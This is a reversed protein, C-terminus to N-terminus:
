AVLKDYEKTMAVIQLLEHEISVGGPAGQALILKRAAKLAEDAIMDRLGSKYEEVPIDVEQEIKIKTKQPEDPSIAPM